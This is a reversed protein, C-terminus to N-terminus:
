FSAQLVHYIRMIGRYYANMKKKIKKKVAHVYGEVVNPTYEEFTIKPVSFMDM